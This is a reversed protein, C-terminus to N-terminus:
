VKYQVIVKSVVERTEWNYGELDYGSETTTHITIQIEDKDPYFARRFKEEFAEKSFEETAIKAM